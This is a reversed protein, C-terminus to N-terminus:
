GGVGQEGPHDGVRGLARWIRVTPLKASAFSIGGLDEAELDHSLLAVTWAEVTVWLANDHFWLRAVGRQLHANELFDPPLWSNKHHLGTPSLFSETHSPGNPQAHSMTAGSGPSALASCKHDPPFAAPHAPAQCNWGDGKNESLGHEVARLTTAGTRHDWRQSRHDVSV